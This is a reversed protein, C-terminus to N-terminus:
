VPYPYFFLRTLPADRKEKRKKKELRARNRKSPPLAGAGARPGKREKKEPMSSLPLCPTGDGGRGKRRQILSSPSTRKRKPRYLPPKVSTKENARVHSLGSKRKRPGILFSFLDCHQVTGKEEREGPPPPLFIGLKETANREKWAEHTSTLFVEMKKLRPLAKERKKRPACPCARSANKGERGKGPL